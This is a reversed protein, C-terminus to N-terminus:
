KSLSIQLLLFVLMVIYLELIVVNVDVWAAVGFLRLLRVCFCRNTCLFLVQLYWM